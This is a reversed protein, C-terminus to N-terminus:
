GTADGRLAELRGRADTMQALARELSAKVEDIYGDASACWARNLAREGAAISTMVLAYADLGYRDAVSLRGEVATDIDGVLERDIWDRVGYVYDATAGAEHSRLTETVRSVAEEVSQLSAASLDESAAQESAARRLCIVGALGVLVCPVYAGWAVTGIDRTGVFIAATLGGYLLIMGINKM